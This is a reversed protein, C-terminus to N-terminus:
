LYREVVRVLEALFKGIVPLNSLAMNRLLLLVLAGLVTFGISFGVGRAIGIFFETIIRRSLTRHRLFEDLRMLELRDAIRELRHILERM